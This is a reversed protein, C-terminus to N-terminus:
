SIFLMNVFAGGRHLTPLFKPNLFLRLQFGQMKCKGLQYFTKIAKREVRRLGLGEREIRRKTKEKNSHYEKTADIAKL